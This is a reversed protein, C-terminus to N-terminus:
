AVSNQGRRGAVALISVGFPLNARRLLFRESGFFASLLNNIWDRQVEFDSRRDGERVRRRRLLRAGWVMPILFTNFYTM